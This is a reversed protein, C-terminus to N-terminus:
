VRWCPSLSELSFEKEILVQFARRFYDREIDGVKSGKPINDIVENLEEIAIFDCMEDDLKESIRRNFAEFQTNVRDFNNKIEDPGINQGPRGMITQALATILGVLAPQSKFIDKGNRFRSESVESGIPPACNSLKEDFVVINKLMAVFMNFVDEKSLSEIMDLRKFNESLVEKADFRESRATFVILLEIVRHAQYEGPNARRLHENVELLNLNDIANHIIKIIPNYCVELQRRINWPTQGTNLVLMRYMLDNITKAIWFEVRIERLSQESKSLESEMIAATRQMGDIISIDQEGKSELYQMFDSISVIDEDKYYEDIIGLVVPPLIAGNKFDDVMRERILKASKTTLATRQGYLGGGDGYARNILSLYKSVTINVIVSNTHKNNDTLKNIGYM